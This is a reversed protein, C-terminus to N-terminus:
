WPATGLSHAREIFDHGDFNAGKLAIFLCGPEINRSDTIISNVTLQASQPPVEIGLAAAVQGLAWRM